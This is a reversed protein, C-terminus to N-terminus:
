GPACYARLTALAQGIGETAVVGSFSQEQSVVQITLQRASQWPGAALRIAEIPLQLEAGPSIVEANFRWEQASTVVTVEPKARPSFPTVAVVIVEMDEEGCRLMVGAFNVDSLGLDATHSVSIADPGGNPNKTRILRWGGTLTPQNANSTSSATTSLAILLALCIVTARACGYSM